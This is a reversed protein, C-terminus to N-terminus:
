RMPVGHRAAHRIAAVHGEHVSMHVQEGTRQRERRPRPGPGLTLQRGLREQLHHVLVADVVAHERRHAQEAVQVVVRDVRQAGVVPQPVTM